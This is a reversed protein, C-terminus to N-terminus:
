AVIMLFHRDTPGLVGADHIGFAGKDVVGEDVLHGVVLKQQHDVGGVPVLIDGVEGLESRIKVAGVDDVQRFIEGLQGKLSRQRLFDELWECRLVQALELVVAEDLAVNHTRRCDDGARAVGALVSELEVNRWRGSRPQPPFDEVTALRM